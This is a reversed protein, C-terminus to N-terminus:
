KGKPGRPNVKSLEQYLFAGAAVAADQDEKPGATVQAGLLTKLSQLLRQRQEETIAVRLKAKPDGQMDYIAFVVMKMTLLLTELGAQRDSRIEVARGRMDASNANGRLILIRTDYAKTEVQQLSRYVEVLTKASKNIGEDQNDVYPM